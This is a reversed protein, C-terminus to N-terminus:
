GERNLEYLAVAAANSVNLSEVLDSIPLRALMDCHTRTLRRLGSGEAGMVLAVDRSGRAAVALTTEAEGDLGIRWYNMEALQHLARSLNPVRVLSVVELAGSAAKALAGTVPPAHRDTMIVARANFAAASRLIAGVNRPDEVHDLVVLINPEDERPELARDIHRAPLPEAHLAIGQHVAEPPLLSEIAERTVVEPSPLAADLGELRPALRELTAQTTLLRHCVRAPNALAALVAHEGYLWRDDM